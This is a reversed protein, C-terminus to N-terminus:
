GAHRVAGRGGPAAATRRLPFEVTFVTGRPHNDAARITGGHGTVIDSVIALGLGGGEKKTSVYPQFLRDRVADPLGRGTDSIRALAARGDGGLDTEVTVTGTGEIADLANEILNIFVRRLQEADGDVVLPAPHHRTVFEIGPRGPRYLELASDVVGRLETPEPRPSPMRAFRSFEDVLRKMAEVQSTVTATAELFVAERDPAHELFRKRARQISLQIPTLPNKVEHAIRRAAERWASARQAAVLQTLDEFVVVRGLEAGAADRLPVASVLLTRIQGGASLTVRGEWPGDGPLSRAAIAERLPRLAPDGLVDDFSRGVPDEGGLGLVTAAARNCTTVSGRTDLSLVGTAVSALITEIMNRRRELEVNFRQLNRYARELEAKNTRLDATMRNFSSVLLGIEDQAEVAIEFDLDGGAIRRTGEALQQIPRTIVRSLYFAFWTASFLILLSISALPLAYSLRIPTRFLRLQRYSDYTAASRELRGRMVAPVFLSATVVGRVPRGPGDRVPWFAQVLDGDSGSRTHLGSRGGWADQLREPPLVPVPPAGSDPAVVRLDPEGARSYYAVAALGLDQLRARLHRSRAERRDTGELDLRAIEQALREAQGLARRETERPASAALEAALRLSEEVGPDFWGQISSMILQLSVAFLVVAPLIALGVFAVAIRSRFLAGLVKRRREFYLKALNRFVLVVLAMLLILNVNLLSFILIKNALPVDTPAGQLRVELATLLAILGLLAAGWALNRRLRAHM